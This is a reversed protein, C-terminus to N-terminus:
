DLVEFSDGSGSGMVRESDDTAVVVDVLPLESM